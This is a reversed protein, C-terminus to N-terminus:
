REVKQLAPPIKGARRAEAILSAAHKAHFFTGSLASMATIRAIEPKTDDTMVAARRELVLRDLTGAYLVMGALLGAFALRKWGRRFCLAGAAAALLLLVSSPGLYALMRVGPPADEDYRTGRYSHGPNWKLHSTAQKRLWYDASAEVLPDDAEARTLHILLCLNGGDGFPVLSLPQHHTSTRFDFEEMTMFDLMLTASGGRFSSSDTISFTAGNQAYVPDGGFHVFRDLNMTINYIANRWRGSFELRKPSGVSLDCVRSEGTIPIFREGEKRAILVTGILKVPGLDVENDDDAKAVPRPDKSPIKVKFEAADLDATGSRWTGVATAVLASVAFLAALSRIMWHYHESKIAARKSSSSRLYIVGLAAVVFIVLPLASLSIQNANM